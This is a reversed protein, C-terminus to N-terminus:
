LVNPAKVKQWESGLVQQGRQMMTAYARSLQEQDEEECAEIMEKISKLLADHLEEGPHLLLEIEDQLLFARRRDETSAKREKQEGVPQGYDWAISSIEALKERLSSIWAERLPAVIQKSVLLSQVELQRQTSRITVIPGIVASALATLASM